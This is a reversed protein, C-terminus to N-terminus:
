LQTKSFLNIMLTQCIQGIIEAIVPGIKLNEPIASM